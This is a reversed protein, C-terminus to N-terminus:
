GTGMMENVADVIRTVELPKPIARADVQALFSATEADVLDGTIFIVNGKMEPRRSMLNRYFDIGNMGPMRIDTIVLDYVQDNAKNWAEIGNAATDIRHGLDRLIDILLDVILPEDDVVLVKGQTRNPDASRADAQSPEGHAPEEADHRIPLEVVFTTGRGKRSRVEIQGGHEKVIGYSVSLGLGTGQGPEKTTFFPDFIRPLIEDDMGTGNDAVEIRINGNSSCTRVVLRGPRDRVAVMAHQANNILNLLV